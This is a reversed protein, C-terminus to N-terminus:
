SRRLSRLVVEVTLDIQNARRPLRNVLAGTIVSAFANMEDYHDLLSDGWGPYLMYALGRAIERTMEAPDDLLTPDFLIGDDETFPVAFSVVGAEMTPLTFVRVPRENHQGIDAGLDALQQPLGREVLDTWSREILERWGLQTLPNESSGGM